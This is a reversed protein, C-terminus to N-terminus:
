VIPPELEKLERDIQHVADLGMLIKSKLGELVERKVKNVLYMLNELEEDTPM